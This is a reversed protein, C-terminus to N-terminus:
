SSTLTNYQLPIYSGLLFFMARYSAKIAVQSYNGGGATPLLAPLIPSSGYAFPM